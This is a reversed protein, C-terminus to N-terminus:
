NAVRLLVVDGTVRGSTLPVPVASIQNFTKMISPPTGALIKSLSDQPKRLTKRFSKTEDFNIISAGKVSLTTNEKAVYVMIYRYKTNFAVLTQAKLIKIPEISSIKYNIDEKKYKFSKLLKDAPKEKTKRPTRTNNIRSTNAVRECDTVIGSYFARFAELTKKSHKAYYEKFKNDVLQEYRPKIWTLIENATIKGINDSKVDAYFSYESNGTLMLKDIEQEIKGKIQNLKSNDNVTKIRPRPAEIIQPRVSNVFNTLKQVSREPMIINRNLVRAISCVVMPPSSSQVADIIDPATNTGKLYEILWKKGETTDYNSGYWSYAHILEIDTAHSAKFLPEDNSLMGAPVKRRYKEKIKKM